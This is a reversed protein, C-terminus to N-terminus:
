KKLLKDIHQVATTLRQKKDGALTIFNRNYRELTDKFYLFMRERENPKDRLDDGVWPVDISTLFYLDYENQM